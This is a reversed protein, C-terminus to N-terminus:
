NLIIDLKIFKIKLRKWIQIKCAEAPLFICNLSPFLDLDLKSIKTFPCQAFFSIKKELIRGSHKTIKYYVVTNCNASNKGIMVVVM